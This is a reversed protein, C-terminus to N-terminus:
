GSISTKLIQIDYDIRIQIGIEQIGSMDGRFSDGSLLFITFQSLDYKLGFKAALRIEERFCRIIDQLGGEASVTM